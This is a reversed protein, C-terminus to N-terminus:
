GLGSLHYLSSFVGIALKSPGLDFTPNPLLVLTRLIDCFVRWRLPPYFMKLWREWGVRPYVTDEGWTLSLSLEESGRGGGDLLCALLSGKTRM